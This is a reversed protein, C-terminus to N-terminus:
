DHPKEEEQMWQEVEEILTTLQPTRKIINRKAVLSSGDLIKALDAQNVGPLKDLINAALTRTQGADYAIRVLLWTLKTALVAQQKRIAQEIIPQLLVAHQVHLKQRIAEELLAACTQSLSLGDQSAIRKLEGKIAPKVWAAVQVTARSRSRHRTTFVAHSM